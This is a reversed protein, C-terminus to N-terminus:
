MRASRALALAGYITLFVGAAQNVRSLMAPTLRSRLLAVGGTLCVWWSAAAAFMGLLLMIADGLPPVSRGIVPALLAMILVLSMPNTANFAIASGYATLPSLTAGGNSPGSVRRRLTRFASWLLFVGGLASVVRTASAMWPALQGMGFLVIAGYAVNVTAAGLGSSLGARMGSALTRQICLLGMPGIPAAISLGVLAGAILPAHNPM